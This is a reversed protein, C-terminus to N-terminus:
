PVNLTFSLQMPTGASGTASAYITGAGYPGSSATSRTAFGSGFSDNPVVVTVVVATAGLGAPTAVYTIEADKLADLHQAGLAGNTVHVMVNNGGPTKVLIPPDFDCWSDGAQAVPAATALLALSLLAARTFRKM